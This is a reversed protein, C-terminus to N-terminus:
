PHCLFDVNIYEVFLATLIPLIISGIKSFYDDLGVIAQVFWIIGSYVNLELLSIM